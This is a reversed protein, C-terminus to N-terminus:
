FVGTTACVVIKKQATYLNTPTTIPKTTVLTYVIYRTTMLQKGYKKGSNCRPLESFVLSHQILIATSKYM